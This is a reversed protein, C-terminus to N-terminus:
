VLCPWIKRFIEIASRLYHKAFYNFKYVKITREEANRADVVLKKKDYLLQKSELDGVKAAIPFRHAEKKVLKSILKDIDTITM